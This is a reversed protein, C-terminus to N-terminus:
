CLSNRTGVPSTGRPTPALARALLRYYEVSQFPATALAAPMAPYSPAHYRRLWAAERRAVASITAHDPTVLDLGSVVPDDQVPTAAHCLLRADTIEALMRVLVFHDPQTCPALQAPDRVLFVGPALPQLLRHLTVLARCDEAVQQQSWARVTDLKSALYTGSYEAEYERERDFTDCGSIRSRADHRPAGISTCFVPDTTRLHGRLLHILEHCVIQNSHLESLGARYCIVDCAPTVVTLGTYPLPIRADSRAQLSRGRAPELVTLLTSLSCGERLGLYLLMTDVAGRFRGQQALSSHPRAFNNM